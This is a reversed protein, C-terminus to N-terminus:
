PNRIMVREVLQIFIPMAQAYPTKKMSIGVDIMGTDQLSPYVFSLTEVYEAMFDTTSAGGPPSRLSKIAYVNRGQEVGKQVQTFVWGRSRGDTFAIQSYRPM